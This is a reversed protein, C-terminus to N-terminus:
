RRIRPDAIAYSLDTLLNVVLVILAFVLLTGQVVPLDRTQLSDVALRGMGPWAFVFEVVVAGALLHGMQVGAFTLISVASNPLAHRGLVRLESVGKQRATEIYDRSLVDIFAGRTLRSLMGLQPLALTIAPLVLSRFGDNGASPFWEFRTAFMIVLLLGVWYSPLSVALTSVGSVLADVWSTRYYAAAAGLPIGVLLAILLGALALEITAGLRPGIEETVPVKTVLSTGLDGSVVGKVWVAYQDYIPKTLGLSERIQAVTDPTADPGALNVAPDGPILRVTLFVIVSVLFLVVVAQSLRRALFSLM